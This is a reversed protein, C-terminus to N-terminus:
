LGALRLFEDKNRRSVAAFIGNSMEIQGGDGRIYKKVYNLNVIFSNHSRFFIDSPLLDEFEKLTKSTLIKPSSHFHLITYNSDAVLLIIEKMDYFNLGNNTPIALKSMLVSSNKINFDLLQHQKNILHHNLNSLKAVTEKLEEVDIPKLLYDFAAYKIAKIAYQDYATTFVVHFDKIPFKNLLDFGSMGPMEIDLFVIDPKHKEIALFGDPGNAAEALIRIDSCYSKIKESLAIRGRIEDDIIIATKMM